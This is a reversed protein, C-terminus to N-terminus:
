KLGDVIFLAGLRRLYTYCYANGDPTIAVTGVNDVGVPDAPALTRIKTRAGTAVDVRVVDRTPVWPGAPSVAFLSRGDASWRVPEDRETLGPVPVPRAIADDISYLAWGTDTLGLVRFGDPSAARPALVVDESTIARPGGKNTDQVYIRSRGSEGETGNFVIRYGDPLWAGDYMATLQGKDLTRSSGAGAPLLIWQRELLTLVWKGDPSL